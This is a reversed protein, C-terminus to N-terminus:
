GNKLEDIDVFLAESRDLFWGYNVSLTNLTALAYGGVVSFKEKFRERDIRRGSRHDPLPNGNLSYLGVVLRLLMFRARAYNRNPLEEEGMMRQLDLEELGSYTRFVPVVKNRVIPVTQHAEGDNILQDLDLPSCRTEIAKRVEPRDIRSREQEAQLAEYLAPDNLGLEGLMAEVAVKDDRPEKQQSAQQKEEARQQFEGLAGLGEVTERSLKGPVGAQPQGLAPQNVAYASGVGQQVVGAQAQEAPTMTDFAGRTRHPPAPVLNPNYDPHRPNAQDQLGYQAQEAMSLPEGGPGTLPEADLRPVSPPKVVGRPASRQKLKDLDDTM